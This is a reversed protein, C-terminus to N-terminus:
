MGFIFIIAASIFALLYKKYKYLEYIKENYNIIYAALEFLMIIPAQKFWVLWAADAQILGDAQM